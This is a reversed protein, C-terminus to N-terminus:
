FLQINQIYNYVKKLEETKKRLAEIHTLDDKSPLGCIDTIEKDSIDIVDDTLKIQQIADTILKNFIIHKEVTEIEEDLKRIAEYINEELENKMTITLELSMKLVQGKM